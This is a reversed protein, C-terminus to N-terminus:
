VHDLGNSGREEAREEAGGYRFDGERRDLRSLMVRSKSFEADIEDGRAFRTLDETSDPQVTVM